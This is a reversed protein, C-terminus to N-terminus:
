PLIVPEIAAGAEAGALNEIYTFLSSDHLVPGQDSGNSPVVM